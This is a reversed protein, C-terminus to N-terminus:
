NYDYNEENNTLLGTTIAAEELLDYFQETETTSLGYHHLARLVCVLESLVYNIHEESTIGNEELIATAEAHTM